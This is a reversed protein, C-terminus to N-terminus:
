RTNLTGTAFYKPAYPKKGDGRHGPAPTASNAASIPPQRMAGPIKRPENDALAIRNPDGNLKTNATVAVLVRPGTTPAINIRWFKGGRCGTM